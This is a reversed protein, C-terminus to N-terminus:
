IKGGPNKRGVTPDDWIETMHGLMDVVFAWCSPTEEADVRTGSLLSTVKPKSHWSPMRSKAHNTSNTFITEAPWPVLGQDAQISHLCTDELPFFFSHIQVTTFNSLSSSFQILKM